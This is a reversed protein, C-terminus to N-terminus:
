RRSDAHEKGLQLECVAIQDDLKKIARALSVDMPHAQFNKFLADRQVTLAKREERWNKNLMKIEIERV